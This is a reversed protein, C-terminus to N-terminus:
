HRLDPSRQPGFDEFGSGNWAGGWIETHFTQEGPLDWCLHEGARAIEGTSPIWGTEGCYAGDVYGAVNARLWGPTMPVIEHPPKGAFVWAENYPYDVGALSIEATLYIPLTGFSPMDVDGWYIDGSTGQRQAQAYGLIGVMVAAVIAAFRWKRTFAIM